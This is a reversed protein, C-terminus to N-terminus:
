FSAQVMPSFESKVMDPPFADEPLPVIYGESVWVPQWGYFPTAVDPGVGAPVSAAIKDRYNDYPVESNHIVKISDRICM